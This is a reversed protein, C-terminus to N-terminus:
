EFLSQQQAQEKTMHSSKRFKIPPRKLSIWNKVESLKAYYPEKTRIAPIEFNPCLIPFLYWKRRLKRDNSRTTHPSSILAGFDTADELFRRVEEGEPSRIEEELLSFGNHGPYVLGKDELISSKIGIGLREIFDRRRAGGPWANQKKLWMESVLRIAQTQIEPSIKEELSKHKAKARESSDWIERCVSLFVLINPASLTIITDWGGYLRRQRCFSAIQMLLAERREKEWYKKRWPFDPGNPPHEPLTNARKLEQNIWTEMLKAQFKNKTYIKKLFKNWVSPWSSDFPLLRENNNRCYKKLEDEPKLSELHEKWWNIYEDHEGGKEAAIRRSAVDRAFDPFIWTGSDEKLKLIDDLNVIQYDRGVELKADTGFTRAELEWSYPRVGVKYSVKPNRSALLSNIVRCFSRGVAKNKDNQSEYDISLLTEYQDLTVFLLIGPRLIQFKELAEKCEVIPVGIETKTTKVIDPLDDRNWNIFARYGSIRKHIKDKFESLSNVNKLAGQWCDRASFYQAFEELCNGKIGADIYQALMRGKESKLFELLKIIEVIIHLNVMDAFVLSWLTINEFPDDALKRNGLVGFGAHIFNIGVSVFLRNRDPIPSEINQQLCAAQVEPSLQKLLMTKGTGNSGKLVVNGKRFLLQAEGTIIKPSFLSWYKRPDELAETLYLEQFPNGGNGRM